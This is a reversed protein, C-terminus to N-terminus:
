NLPTRQMHCESSNMLERSVLGGLCGRVSASASINWSFLLPSQKNESYRTGLRALHISASSKSAPLVYIQGALLWPFGSKPTKEKILLM